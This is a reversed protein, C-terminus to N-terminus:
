PQKSSLHKEIGDRMTRANNLNTTLRQLLNLEKTRFRFYYIGRNLFLNRNPNRSRIDIGLRYAASRLSNDDVGTAKSIDAISLKGKAYKKIALIAKNGRPFPHAINLRRRASRISGFAVGFLKTAAKTTLSHKLQYRAAAIASGKVIDTSM